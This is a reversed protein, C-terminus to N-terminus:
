GPPVQAHSLVRITTGCRDVNASVIDGLEASTAPNLMV